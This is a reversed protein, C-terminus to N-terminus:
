SERQQVLLAALRGILTYPIPQNLPFQATGKGTAYPAVEAILEDSLAPLPYLGIHKRWGAFHVLSRGDHTITPMQYAITEGADPM